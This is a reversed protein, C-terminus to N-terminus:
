VGVGLCWVTWLSMCIAICYLYSVHQRNVRVIGSSVPKTSHQTCMMAHDLNDIKILICHLM